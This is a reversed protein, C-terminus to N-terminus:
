RERDTGSSRSTEADARGASGPTGAGSGSACGPQLLVELPTVYYSENSGDAGAAEGSGRGLLAPRVTPTSGKKRPPPPGRVASSSVYSKRQQQARQLAVNLHWAISFLGSGAALALAMAFLGPRTPSLFLPEPAPLLLQGRPPPPRQRHSPCSAEVVGLQRGAVDFIVEHHLFWTAGLITEKVLGNSQFGYCWSNEHAKPRYMYAEPKWPVTKGGSFTLQLTPFRALAERSSSGQLRWCSDDHPQGGCGANEKCFRSVEEALQKYLELPLYSYTTGSDVVTTGFGSLKMGTDKVSVENLDVAYYNRVVMPIWTIQKRLHHSRNVGGVSLLGGEEALCLAFMATNVSRKDRFIDELITPRGSGGPAMGFIGNAQQNYFMKTEHTHCGLRAKVPPNQQFEDGLHVFDYFWSGTIASGETYSQSYSCRGEVCRTCHAGKAGCPIWAATVSRSIDFHPDLHRGCHQCGGCSFACVASGTDVIVSARQPMPTGILLDVFYYAYGGINGYLRASEVQQQGDYGRALTALPALRWPWTSSGARTM